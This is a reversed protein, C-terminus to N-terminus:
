LSIVQFPKGTKICELLVSRTGKSIGDWFALVFDARRVIEQNRVIPAAKGYRDYEPRIVVLPLGLTQASQAALTDVGAAGGSIVASCGAPIHRIMEQETVSGPKRSGVIAVKM